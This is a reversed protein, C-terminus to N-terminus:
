ENEDIPTAHAGLWHIQELTEDLEGRVIDIEAAKDNYFGEIKVLLTRYPEQTSINLFTPKLNAKKFIDQLRSSSLTENMILSFYSQDNGSPEPTVRGIAVGHTINKPLEKTIVAPLYAFIKFGSEEVNQLLQWWNSDDRNDPHPLVGINANGDNMEAFVRQVNGVGAVPVFSGFHERAQWFLSPSQDDQLVAISLPSELHISAGIINRWMTAAAAPNFSTGKFANYIRAIMSGERGSRVYLGTEGSTKKAEGVKEVIGIRKKLLDILEDDINDIEQRYTSLKETINQTMDPSFWIAACFALKTTQSNYNINDENRALLALAAIM